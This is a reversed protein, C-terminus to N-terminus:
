QWGRSLQLDSLISKLTPRLVYSLEDGHERLPDVVHDEALRTWLVTKALTTSVSRSFPAAHETVSTTVHANRAKAAIM